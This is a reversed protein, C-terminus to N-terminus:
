LQCPYKEWRPTIRSSADSYTRKLSARFQAVALSVLMRPVIGLGLGPTQLQSWLCFYEPVSIDGERHPTFLFSLPEGPNQQLFCASFWQCSNRSVSKLKGAIIPAGSAPVAERWRSSRLCFPNLSLTFPWKDPFTELISSSSLTSNGVLIRLHHSETHTCMYLLIHTCM